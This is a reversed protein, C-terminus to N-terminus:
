KYLKSRRLIIPLFCDLFLKGNVRGSSMGGAAFREIYVYEESCESIGLSRLTVKVKEVIYEDSLPLKDYTFQRAMYAWLFPMGRSGWGTDPVSLFLEYAYHQGPERFKLFPMTEDLDSLETKLVDEKGVPFFRNGGAGLLSKEFEIINWEPHLKKGVSDIREYAAQSHFLITFDLKKYPIPM